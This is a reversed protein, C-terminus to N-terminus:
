LLFSFDLHCYFSISHLGSNIFLEYLCLKDRLCVFGSTYWMCRPNWSYVKVPLTVQTGPQPSPTYPLSFSSDTRQLCSFHFELWPFVLSMIFNVPPRTELASDKNEGSSGSVGAASTIPPYALFPLLALRSGSYHCCRCWGAVSTVTVM